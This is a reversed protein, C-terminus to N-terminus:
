KKRFVVIHQQPLTAITQSHELQPHLGLETKLQAESMKHVEKIAVTPDEKRFEVLVLRGGPKLAQIM